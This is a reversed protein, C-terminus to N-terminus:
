SSYCLGVCFPLLLFPFLFIPYTSLFLFFHLFLPPMFLIIFVVFIVLFRCPFFQFYYFIIFFFSSFLIFLFFTLFSPSHFIFFNLPLLYIYFSPLLAVDVQSVDTSMVTASIVRHFSLIYSLAKLCCQLHRCRNVASPLCLTPQFNQRVKEGPERRQLSTQLCSDHLHRVRRKKKVNKIM